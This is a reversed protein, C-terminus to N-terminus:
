TLKLTRRGAPFQIVLSRQLVLEIKGKGHEPHRIIEGVKYRAKPDYARAEAAQLEDLLVAKEKHRRESDTPGGAPRAAAASAAKPKPPVEAGRYKHTNKCAHCTVKAPEGDVVALITHTHVEDCRSCYAEAEGGVKHGQRSALTEGPALGIVMPQRSSTGPRTAFFSNDRVPAAPSGSSPTPLRSATRGLDAVKRGWLRDAQERDRDELANVFARYRGTLADVRLRLDIMLKVNAREADLASVVAEHLEDAERGISRLEAEQTENV